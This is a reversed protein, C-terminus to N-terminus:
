LVGGHKLKILDDATMGASILEKLNTQQEKVEEILPIDQAVVAGVNVKHPGVYINGYEDMRM